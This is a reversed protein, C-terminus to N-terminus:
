SPCAGCNCDPHHRIILSDIRRKKEAKAEEVPTETKGEFVKTLAHVALGWYDENVECGLAQRGSLFAAELITGSGVSCDGGAEGRVSIVSIIEKLLAVPKQM